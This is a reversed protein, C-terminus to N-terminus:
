EAPFDTMACFAGMVASNAMIKATDGSGVQVLQVPLLMVGVPPPVKETKVGVDHFVVGGPKMKGVNLEYSQQSIAGLVDFKEEYSTLLMDSFRVLCNNLGGKILSPYENVVIANLNNRVAAKALMTGASMVGYGAEGGLLVILDRKAM